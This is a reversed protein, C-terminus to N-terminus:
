AALPTSERRTGNAATVPDWEQGTTIIAHLQRLIAAAIVGATRASSPHYIRQTL